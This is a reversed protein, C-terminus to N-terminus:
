CVKLPQHKMNRILNLALDVSLDTLLKRVKLTREKGDPTTVTYKQTTPKLYPSVTPNKSFETTPNQPIGSFMGAGPTAIADFRSAPTSPATPPPPIFGNSWPQSLQATTGIANSSVLNQVRSATSISPSIGGGLRQLEVQQAAQIQANGQARLGASQKLSLARDADQAAQVRKFEAMDRGTIRAEYEHALRNYTSGKSGPNQRWYNEHFDQMTRQLPTMAERAAVYEPRGKEYADYAPNISRSGGRHTIWKTPPATTAYYKIRAEKEAEKAKKEGAEKAKKENYSKLDDEYQKLEKDYKIVDKQYEKEAVINASQSAQYQGQGGAGSLQAQDQPLVM